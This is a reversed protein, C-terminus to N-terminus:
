GNTLGLRETVLQTLVPVLVKISIDLGREAVFAKAKNWITDNRALDLFEHGDWTLRRVLYGYPNRLTASKGGDLLEADLLLHIHYGVMDRDYNEVVVETTDVADMDQVTLLIKRILDMDRKM